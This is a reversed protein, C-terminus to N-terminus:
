KKRIHSANDSYNVGADDSAKQKIDASFEQASKQRQSSQSATPCGNKM